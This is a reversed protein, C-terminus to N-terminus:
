FLLGALGFYLTAVLFSIAASVWGYLKICGKWLMQGGEVWGCFWDHFGMGPILAILFVSLLILNALYIFSLSFLWGNETIDSQIMPITLLTFSVHFGWTAGLLGYLVWMHAGLPFWFSALWWAWAVIFSYVPFFYPALSIWCNVKDTRIHGGSSTVKFEKVCGNFVWVWIAHTLEHGFVYLWVPRPLVFFLVGWAVVGSSFCLLPSFERGWLISGASVFVCGSAWSAVFCIPLLFFLGVCFKQWKVSANRNLM